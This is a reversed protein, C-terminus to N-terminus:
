RGRRGDRHPRDLALSVNMGPALSRLREASFLPAADDPLAGRLRLRTVSNPDLRALSARLSGDLEEISRGEVRLEVTVMPRTRLAHFRWRLGVQAGPASRGLRLILFGKTEGEEAHSTREVSGPYLVPAGLPRGALDHTLIQHPHLHGSLVALVDQPIDRGRIVDRGSRFVHRNPGAWCGEICHHVCLLRADAASARYGTQEVLSRFNTRVARHYPFGALVLRIGKMELEFTRPRDFIHVNRHAAFIPHPIHSREHNGPVVYVPVGRDAVRFLPEFAMRVLRAPVKSRYLLDGGHLVVDAGGDLAVQLSREFNAFFDPGRRRRQVRPRFPLDFGLHTDSVFLIRLPEM